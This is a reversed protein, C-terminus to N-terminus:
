GCKRDSSHEDGTSEDVFILQNANYSTIKNMWVEKLEENRQVTHIYMYLDFFNIFIFSSVYQKEWGNLMNLCVKSANKLYRLSFPIGYFIVMSM